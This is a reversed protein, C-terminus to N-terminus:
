EPLEQDSVHLIIKGIHVSSEMLAHADAAQDLTFIKFLSPKIQGSELLPWVHEALADAIAAKEELPRQRLVSGTLTLRRRMIKFIDIEAEKGHLMAINIHRGNEALCSLNKLVYDGGVMDLVIDVGAGETAKDILAVFDQTKYNIALDAGLRECAECKEDSGATAYVKGGFAKIMQIATTGIGSSGGHVLVREGKQFAGIDLLNRWVTFFTEPIGAAEEFSFGQPVPLCQAVPAVCYEAYGGGALLACVPAGIKGDGAVITGSVELGPLDSIGPPPDYKGMRQVIDPRNVGAAATKILVEGDGPEPVPRETMQLAGDPGPHVIEVAKMIEPISDPENDM